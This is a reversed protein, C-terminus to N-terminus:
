QWSRFRYKEVFTARAKSRSQKVAATLTALQKCQQRLMDLNRHVSVLLDHRDQRLQQAERVLAATSGSFRYRTNGPTKQHRAERPAWKGALWADLEECSAYVVGMPSDVPRRV